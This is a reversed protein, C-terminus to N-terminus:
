NGSNFTSNFQGDYKLYHSLSESWGFIIYREFSNLSHKLEGM